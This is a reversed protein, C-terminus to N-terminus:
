GNKKKFEALIRKDEDSKECKFACLERFRLIFSLDIPENSRGSLNLEHLYPLITPLQDFFTQDLNVYSCIFHDVNPMEKLLGIVEDQGLSKTEILPQGLIRPKSQTFWECFLVLTHVRYLKRFIPTRDTLLKLDAITQNNILICEKEQFVFFDDRFQQENKAYLEVGKPKCQGLSSEKQYFIQDFVELVEGDVPLSQVFVKLDRRLKRGSRILEKLKSKEASFVNLTHLEPHNSLFRESNAELYLLNLVELSNLQSVWPSYSDYKLYRLKPCNVIPAVTPKYDIALALLEPCDLLKAAEQEEVEDAGNECEDFFSCDYTKLKRLSISLLPIGAM